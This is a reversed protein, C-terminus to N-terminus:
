LSRRHLRRSTPSSRPLAYAGLFSTRVRVPLMRAITRAARLM